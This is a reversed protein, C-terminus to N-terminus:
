AVQYAQDILNDLNGNLQHPTITFPSLEARKEVFARLSVLNGPKAYKFLALGVAESYVRDAAPPSLTASSVNGGNLKEHAQEPTLNAIEEDSLGRARLDAKMAHTMVLPIGQPQQQHAPDPGPTPDPPDHPDRDTM